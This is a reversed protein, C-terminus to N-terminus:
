IGGPMSNILDYMLSTAKELSSIHQACKNIEDILDTHKAYPDWQAHGNNGLIGSTIQFLFINFSKM